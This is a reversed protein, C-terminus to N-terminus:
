VKSRGYRARMWHVFTGPAEMTSLRSNRVLLWDDFLHSAKIEALTAPPDLRRLFEMDVVWSKPNKPDPRPLSAVQALGLIASEGGSHYLFVRDGPQMKRIAQLAQANTVGDWTTKREREFDAIPYTSPDTKALFYRM